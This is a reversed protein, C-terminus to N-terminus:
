ADDTEGKRKAALRGMDELLRGAYQHIWAAGDLDPARLAFARGDIEVSLEMPGKMVPLALPRPPPSAPPPPAAKPEPNESQSPPPLTQNAPLGLGRRWSAVAPATTGVSGAIEADSLKQDYLARAKETDWGRRRMFMSGKKTSDAEKRATCDEGPPCPRCRGTIQLYDCYWEGGLCIAYACGKCSM